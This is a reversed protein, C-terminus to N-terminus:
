LSWVTHKPPTDKSHKFHLNKYGAAIVLQLATRKEESAWTGWHLEGEQRLKKPVLLAVEETVRKAAGRHM